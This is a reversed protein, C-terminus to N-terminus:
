IRGNWSFKANIRHIYMRKNKETERVIGHAKMGATFLKANEEWTGLMEKYSLIIRGDERNVSKVM